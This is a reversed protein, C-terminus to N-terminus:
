RLDDNVSDGTGRQDQGFGRVVGLANQGSGVRYLDSGFLAHM